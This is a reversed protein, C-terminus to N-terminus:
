RLPGSKSRQAHAGADLGALCYAAAQPTIPTVGYGRNPTRCTLAGPHPERDRYRKSLSGRQARARGIGRQRETHTKATHCPVCLWQLNDLTDTGGEALNIIHDLELTTGDKIGCGACQYPFARRARRRIRTSRSGNPWNTM